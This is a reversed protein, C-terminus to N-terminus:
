SKSEGSPEPPQKKSPIRPKPDVPDLPAPIFDDPTFRPNLKQDTYVERVDFVGDPKAPDV